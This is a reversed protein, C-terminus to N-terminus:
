QKTYTHVGQENIVGNKWITYTGTMKGTTADIIGSETGTWGTSFTYSTMSYKLNVFDITFIATWGSNWYNVTKITSTSAKTFSVTYTYAEAPEDTLYSGVFTNIPLLGTTFSWVPSTSKGGFPDKTVVKWYYVTNELLSTTISAQAATLDTFAVPPDNTTGLYLDYTLADSEPDSGTWSITPNCSVGVANLLPAKIAAVLPNSNVEFNWVPSTSIVNNANITKVQWYYAGGTTVTTKYTNGTFSAINLKKMNDASTGFYIDWKANTATGTWTLNVDIPTGSFAIVNGVAPTPEAPVAAKYVVPVPSDDKTCSQMATLGFLVFAISLFINIRKM